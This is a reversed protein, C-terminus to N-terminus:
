GNHDAKFKLFQAKTNTIRQGYELHFEVHCSRCLTVGNDLDTRLERNGSYGELHHANLNKGHEGCVQCTYGDRKFVARRWEQYGPFIRRSNREADTKSADYLYNNEGSIKKLGCDFCRVGKLFNGLSTSSENGCKCRYKMAVNIGSYKDELLTCDAQRYANRASNIDWKKIGTCAPCQKGKAINALSMAYELGCKCIYPMKTSNNVYETALLEYGLSAFVRLAEDLTLRGNKSGTSKYGCAKCCSMKKFSVLSKAGNIGCKCRFNMVTKNDHYEDELLVCEADTFISRVQEISLKNKPNKM